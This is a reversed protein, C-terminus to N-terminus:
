FPVDDDLNDRANNYPRDLPEDPDDYDGQPSPEEPNPLKSGPCFEAHLDKLWKEQKPSLFMREGYEDARKVQDDVFSQARSYLQGRVSQLDDLLVKLWEFKAPYLSM